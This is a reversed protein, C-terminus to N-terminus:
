SRRVSSFRSSCRNIISSRGRSSTAVSRGSNEPTLSIDPVSIVLFNRAGQLVLQEIGPGMSLTNGYIFKGVFAEVVQPNNANARFFSINKTFFNLIDNSGGWITILDTPQIIHFVGLLNNIQLGQPGNNAFLISPSNIFTPDIVNQGVLQSGLFAFDNGGLNSSSLPLGLAQAFYSM